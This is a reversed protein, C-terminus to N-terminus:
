SYLEHNWGMQFINTLNFWKGLYPHFYFFNSVWNERLTIIYRYQSYQCKCRATTYEWSFRAPEGASYRWTADCRTGYARGSCSGKWAESIILEGMGGRYSRLSFPAERTWGLCQFEEKLWRRDDVHYLDQPCQFDACSGKQHSFLGWAHHCQHSM